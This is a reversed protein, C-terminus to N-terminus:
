ARYVIDSQWSQECSHCFMDHVLVVYDGRCYHDVSCGHTDHDPNSCINGESDCLSPETELIDLATSPPIAM